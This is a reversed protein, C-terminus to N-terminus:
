AGGGNMSVAVTVTQRALVMEHQEQAGILHKPMEPMGVQLMAYRMSPTGYAKAVLLIDRQRTRREDTSLSLWEAWGRDTPQPLSLFPQHVRRECEIFYRRAEKGRDTKSVMSVEKAMDMTILYEVTKQPRGKSGEKSPVSLGEATIFDRGEEFGYAAIQVKIWTAFAKRVDLFAHLDRADAAQVTAGGILAQTLRIPLTHTQNSL